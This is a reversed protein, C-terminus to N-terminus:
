AGKKAWESVKIAFFSIVVPAVLIVLFKILDDGSWRYKQFPDFVAFFLGCSVLWLGSYGVWARYASSLEGTRARISAFFVPFSFQWGIRWGGISALIPFAAWGLGRPMFQRGTAASAALLLLGEFLAAASLAIAAFVLAQFFRKMAIGSQASSQMSRAIRFPASRPQLAPATRPCFYLHERGGRFM